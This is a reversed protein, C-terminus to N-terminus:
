PATRPACQAGPWAPASFLRSKDNGAKAGFETRPGPLCTMVGSGRAELALAESFSVVFAKTAYHDGRPVSAL